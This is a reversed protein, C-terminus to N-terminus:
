NVVGPEEPNRDLFEHATSVLVFCVCEKCLMLEENEEDRFQASFQVITKKIEYAMDLHTMVKSQEMKRQCLGCSAKKKGM